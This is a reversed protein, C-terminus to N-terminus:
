VHFLFIYDLSEFKNSYKYFYLFRFIFNSIKM